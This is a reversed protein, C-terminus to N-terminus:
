AKRERADRATMAEELTEFYPTTKSIFFYSGFPQYNIDRYPNPEGRLDSLAAIGYDFRQGSM